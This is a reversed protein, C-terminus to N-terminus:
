TAAESVVRAFRGEIMFWGTSSRRHQGVLRRTARHHVHGDARAPRLRPDAASGAAWRRTVTRDAPGGLGVESEAAWAALHIPDIRGDLVGVSERTPHLAVAHVSGPTMASEETPALVSIRRPLADIPLVEMIVQLAAPGRLGGLLGSATPPIRALHVVRGPVSTGVPVAGDLLEATGATVASFERTRDTKVKAVAPLTLVCVAHAITLLLLVVLVALFAHDDVLRLTVIGALMWGSVGVLVFARTRDHRIMAEDRQPNVGRPRVPQSM